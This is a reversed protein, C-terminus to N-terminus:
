IGYYNSQNQIIAAANSQQSTFAIVEPISGFFQSPATVLGDATRGITTRNTVLSTGAITNSLNYNTGNKSIITTGSTTNSVSWNIWSFRFIAKTNLNTNNVTSAIIGGYCDLTPRITANPYAQSCCLLQTRVTTFNNGQHVYSGYCAANASSVSNPVYVDGDGTFTFVGFNGQLQQLNTDFLVTSKGNFTNISLKPQNAAVVNTINRGNGTQDYWTVIYGTSGNLFNIASNTDFEGNVFKINLTFNDRSRRLLISNGTYAKVIQRLSYAFSAGAGINSILNKPKNNNSFLITKRTDAFM